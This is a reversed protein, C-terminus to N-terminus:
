HPISGIGLNPSRYGTVLTAPKIGRRVLDNNETHEFKYISREWFLSKLVQKKGFYNSLMSIPAELLTVNKYAIKEFLIKKLQEIM